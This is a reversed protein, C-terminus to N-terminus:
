PNEFTELVDPFQERLDNLTIDGFVWYDGFTASRELLKQIQKPGFVHTLGDYGKRTCTSRHAAAGGGYFESRCDPCRYYGVSSQEEPNYELKVSNSM